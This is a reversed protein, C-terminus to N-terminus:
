CVQLSDSGPDSSSSALVLSTNCNAVTVGAMALNNSTALARTGGQCDITTASSGAGLVEVARAATGGCSPPGFVGPGLQVRVFESPPLPLANVVEEVAYRLTACAAAGPAAGCGAVDVGNVSVFVTTTDTGAAPAGAADSHTTNGTTIPALGSAPQVPLGTEMFKFRPLPLLRDHSEHGVLPLPTSRTRRSIVPAVPASVPLHMARPRAALPVSPALESPDANGWDAAAQLQM